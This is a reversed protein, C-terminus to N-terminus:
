LTKMLKGRSKGCFIIQLLESCTTAFNAAFLMKTQRLIKDRRQRMKEEVNGRGKGCFKWL